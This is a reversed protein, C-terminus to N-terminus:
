FPIWDDPYYDDNGDYEINDEFQLVEILKDVFSPIQSSHKAIYKAIGQKNEINYARAENELNKYKDEGIQIMTATEYDQGFCVYNNGTICSYYKSRNETFINVEEFDELIDEMLKNKKNTHKKNNIDGDFICICRYGFSTYLRYLTPINAKGMCNIIEIGNASLFYKRRELWIPISLKETLGEVLVITDAFMGELQESYLRVDFYEGLNNFSIKSKDVGTEILVQSLKTSDLQVIKTVAEEKYVRVLGELNSPNIFNPSHTSIIIQLGSECLDYIYKKLWKQALPHLNAEPEELIFLFNKGKFAEMYAKAFAMVLIQQEGTGFEDFSRVESNEFANIRLSRAFNNPDYASFDAELHHIFGKVSEEISDKFITFMNAFEAKNEFVSKINEFSRSLEIKDSDTLSDHLSKNFKSLLSYKNSYNFHFSTNRNADLLFSQFGERTDNSIYLKKGNGDHLLNENIKGDVGYTLFISNYSRYYDSHYPSDFKVNIDITPNKIKDRLFYDSDEVDIFTPYREGLIRDFASLINSKGANNPGFLILPKNKPLEISIDDISRYHRISISELIM